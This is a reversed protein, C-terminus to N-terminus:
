VIAEFGDGAARASVAALMGPRERGDVLVLDPRFVALLGTGGLTTCSLLRFRGRLPEAADAASVLEVADELELLGAHGGFLPRLAAPSVIMVPAGTLSDRLCNGTDILARFQARRGSLALAAPVCHREARRHRTRSILSLVAYCGAFCLALLRLDPAPVAGLRLSIAWVAGGFTASLALFVAVCRGLRRECGFAILGMLVAAALEM